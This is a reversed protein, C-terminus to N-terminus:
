KRTNIKWVNGERKLRDRFYPLLILASDLKESKIIIKRYKGDNIIKYDIFYNSQILDVITKYSSLSDQILNYDEITQKNEEISKNYEKLISSYDNNSKDLEDSIENYKM